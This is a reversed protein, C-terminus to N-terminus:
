EGWRIYFLGAGYNANVTFGRRNMDDCLMNFTGETITRVDHPALGATRKGVKSNTGAAAMLMETLQTVRLEDANDKLGQASMITLLGANFCPHLM